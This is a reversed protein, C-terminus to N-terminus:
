RTNYTKLVFNRNDLFANGYFVRPSTKYLNCMARQKTTKSIEGARESVCLKIQGKGGGSNEEEKEYWLRECL